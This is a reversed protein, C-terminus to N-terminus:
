AEPPHEATEASVTVTPAPRDVTIGYRKLMRYLTRRNVRLGRAAALVNGGTEEIAQLVCARKADELAIM